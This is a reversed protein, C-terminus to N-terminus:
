AESDCVWCPAQKVMRRGERSAGLFLLLLLDLESLWARFAEQRGSGAGFLVMYGVAPSAPGLRAPLGSVGQPPAPGRGLQM